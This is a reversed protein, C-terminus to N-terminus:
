RRRRKELASDEAEDGRRTHELRRMRHHLMELV